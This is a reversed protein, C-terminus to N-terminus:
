LSRKQDYHSNSDITIFRRGKKISEKLYVELNEMMYKPATQDAGMTKGCDHLLLISGDEPVKRLQDLLTTKCSEIKWDRFVHSWMIAEYDKSVYKTFLNFHGWPPRYFNVKEGICDRIAKETMSIQWKLYFPPLVWNSLHHFHHIGIVHGEQHMRKIIEPHKKVKNGMVFFTAKIHYKKLLDLLTMTYEPNPGDDFTLAIGKEGEVKKTIGKGYTRIVITPILAYFVIVAFSAILLYIMESCSVKWESTDHFPLDKAYKIGGMDLHYAKKQCTNTNVINELLVGM